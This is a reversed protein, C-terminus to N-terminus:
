CIEEKSTCPLDSEPNYEGPPQRIAPLVSTTVNNIKNNVKNQSIRQTDERVATDGTIGEDDATIRPVTEM